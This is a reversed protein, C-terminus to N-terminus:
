KQFGMLSLFFSSFRSDWTNQDRAWFVPLARAKLASWEEQGLFSFGMLHATNAKDPMGFVPVIQTV